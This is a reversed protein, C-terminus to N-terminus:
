GQAQSAHQSSQSISCKVDLPLSSSRTFAVTASRQLVPTFSRQSHRGTAEPLLAINPVSTTSDPTPADTIAHHIHQTRWDHTLALDTFFQNNTTINQFHEAVERLAPSRSSSSSFSIPDSVYYAAM